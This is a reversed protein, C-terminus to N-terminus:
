EHKTVALVHQFCFQCSSIGVQRKWGLRSHHSFGTFPVDVKPAFSINGISSTNRLLSFTNSASNVVALDLKGDGDWDGITVNSRGAPVNVEPAVGAAFAIADGVSLNRLISLSDPGKSVVFDVKGDADIDALPTGAVISNTKAFSLTPNSCPFTVVFPTTAYATRGNVTVSLPQDTPGAPVTVALSTASAATVVAKVRGIYVVNNSAVPSFNSGTITVTAGVPGSTPSFASITPPQASSLLPVFLVALFAGYHRLLISKM